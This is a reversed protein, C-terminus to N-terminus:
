FCRVIRRISWVTYAYTIDKLISVKYGSITSVIIVNNRTSFTLTYRKLMESSVVSNKLIEAGFDNSAIASLFELIQEIAESDALYQGHMLDVSAQALREYSGTELEQLISDRLNPNLLCATLARYSNIVFKRTRKCRSSNLILSAYQPFIFEAMALTGFPNDHDLWFRDCLQRIFGPISSLLESTQPLAAVLLRQNFLANLVDMSARCCAKTHAFAVEVDQVEAGLLVSLKKALENLQEPWNNTTGMSPCGVYLEVLEIISSM